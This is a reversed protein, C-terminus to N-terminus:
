RVLAGSQWDLYLNAYDHTRLISAPCAETIDNYLTDQVAQAKSFAPVVCFLARASMITPITLTLAHTPVDDLTKFCEDHVQQMRCKEDLEVKKIVEPDNFDAVHPDNFAIHGNEGIGLCVIDPPYEKLLTAYRACEADIDQAQSNIGFVNKFPAHDFLHEKLYHFFLQPADQQLGIYEDMHFANIKSFDIEKCKLLESLVDNQSPAAAFIMNVSDKEQLLSLIKITIDLAASQGMLKRSPAIEVFLKDQMFRESKM